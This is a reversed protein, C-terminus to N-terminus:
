AGIWAGSNRVLDVAAESDAAVYGWTGALETWNSSDPKLLRATGFHSVHAEFESDLLVNKSSVDRHVIPLVCDHHMYSLSLAVAKINNVRKVWDLEMAGKESGKWLGSVYMENIFSRQDIQEGDELKHLKKIAVVQGIPLTARHVRRYGGEGICYKDDFDETADIIDEHSICGDWNWIFILDENRENREEKANRRGRGFITFIGLVHDKGCLGKNHDM